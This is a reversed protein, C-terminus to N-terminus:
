NVRLATSPQVQTARRTPVYAAALAALGLVLVAGAFVSPDYPSQQYVMGAVAMAVLVALGLGIAVGFGTLVLSDRLVMWLVDRPSAGLAIRIGIERTRLTVLYAKVGYLGIAALFLALGGFVSFMVAGARAFWLMLSTDRYNELTKLWLIPVRDDVARITRRVLSLTAVEADRPGSVTKVHLLMGCRYRRGFPVYVHPEAERDYLDHRLGPAIGVIEARPGTLTDDRKLFVLQQGLPEEAPFLERALPEDIIVVPPPEPSEEEGRTFERGRLVSIGLAAFYDSGVINSVARATAEDDVVDLRRVRESESFDGFSILSAFSAARVQPLARVRSLLERYLERGRAQDYGALAPDVSAVVGDRFAFGPDADAAELASRVFLGGCTLLALSLAVQGVVLAHRVTLWRHRGGDAVLQKLESVVDTQSLRWAPWLAFMLTSAAAFGLTAALVRMDPTGDYEIAIPLAGAMSDAIARTATFALLMGAAGGALSLLFGEVLLQRVIRGRGAGLAIRIGVEKRRASARALLMNALNLCAILLVVVAMAQLLGFIAFAETDGGPSTSMGVRRLRSVMLTQDKNAVPHAQEMRTALAALRPNALDEALGPHLRGILMLSHNERDGLGTADGVKAFDNVILEHASLPVFVEPAILSASGTFGRATVGVITYDRGNVIISGGLVGPNAGHRQWYGHSVIAVREPYGPREEDATFARGIELHSALTEFYNSSVALAM